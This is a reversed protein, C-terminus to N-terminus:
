IKRNINCDKINKNNNNNRRKLKIKWANCTNIDSTCYNDCHYNNKIGNCPCNIPTMMQSTNQKRKNNQIFCIENNLCIKFEDLNSDVLSCDKFTQQFLKLQSMMLHLHNSNTLSKILKSLGFYNKCSQKDISCFEDTCQYGYMNTNTIECKQKFCKEVYEFKYNYKGICTHQTRKCYNSSYLRSIVGNNNYILLYTILFRLLM